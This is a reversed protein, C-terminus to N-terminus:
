GKVVGEPLHIAFRCRDDGKLASELVEVELPEGFVVEYPKKHFGGSCYCFDEVLRTDGRRIAERAWPCHCAYYRKMVPDSEALYQKTMYPIKTEYVIKGVRRGGGIEKNGKVFALVEGTIEQVFFLQGQRQCSRLWRLFSRHRSALWTDIDGAKQYKRKEERYYEDPLDRLCNSLFDRCAQEGVKGQLRELVPHLTAPKEPTPLGYPPPKGGIFVEDRVEEGFRDGLLRYLNGGVEGGDVLEMLAVFMEDNKIFRCYRILTVYNEYSNKGEAILEKSFAWATEASPSRGQLYAEFREALVIAPDIMVTPLKRGELM